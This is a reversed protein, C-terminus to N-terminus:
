KKTSAILGLGTIFDADTMVMMQWIGYEVPVLDTRYPVVCSDGFQYYVSEVFKRGSPSTMYVKLPFGAPHLEKDLRTYFSLDYVGLSDTMDLEFEYRGSGDNYAYYEM